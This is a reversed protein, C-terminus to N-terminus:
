GNFKSLLNVNRNLLDHLGTMDNVIRRAVMDRAGIHVFSPKSKIQSELFQKGFDDINQAIEPRIEFGSIKEAYLNHVEINRIREGGNRLDNCFKQCYAYDDDHILDREKLISLIQHGYLRKKEYEQLKSIYGDSSHIENAVLMHILIEEIYISLCKYAFNDMALLVMVKLEHTKEIFFSPLNEHLGWSMMVKRDEIVEKRGKIEVEVFQKYFKGM